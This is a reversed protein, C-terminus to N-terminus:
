VSESEDGNEAASQVTDTGEEKKVASSENVQQGDENDQEIAAKGPTVEAEPTSEDEEEEKEDKREAKASTSDPVAVADSVPEVEKTVEAEDDQEEAKVKVDDKEAVVLSEARAQKKEMEPEAATESPEAATVEAQPQNPESDPESGSVSTVTTSADAEEGEEIGTSLLASPGAEAVLNPGGELSPIEAEAKSTLLPLDIGSADRGRPGQTEGDEEEQIAEELIKDAPSVKPSLSSPRITESIELGKTPPQGSAEALIAASDVALQRSSVPSSPGGGQGLTSASTTITPEVSAAQEVVVPAPPPPAAAPAFTAEPSVLADSREKLGLLEKLTENEVTLRENETLVELARESKVVDPDLDKGTYGGSGYWRPDASWGNQRARQSKIGSAGSQSYESPYADEDESDTTEGDM